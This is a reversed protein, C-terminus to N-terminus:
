KVRVVAPVQFNDGLGMGLLAILRHWGDIMEVDRSTPWLVLVPSEKMGEMESDELWRVIKRVRQKDSETFGNVFNGFDFRRKFWGLTFKAERWEGEDEGEELIYEADPSADFVNVVGGIM